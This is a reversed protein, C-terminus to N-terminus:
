YSLVADTTFKKTAISNNTQKRAQFPIEMYIHLSFNCFHTAKESHTNYLALSLCLHRDSYVLLTSNSVKM